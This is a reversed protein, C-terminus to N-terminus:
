LTFWEATPTKQEVVVGEVIKFENIVFDGKL